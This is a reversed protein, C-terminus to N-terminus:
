YIWFSWDFLYSCLNLGGLVLLWVLWGDANDGSGMVCEESRVAGTPEDLGLRRKVCSRSRADLQERAAPEHVREPGFFGRQRDWLDVM